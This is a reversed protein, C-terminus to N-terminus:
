PFTHIHWPAMKRTGRGAMDPASSRLVDHLRAESFAGLDVSPSYSAPRVSKLPFNEGVTATRKRGASADQVGEARRCEAGQCHRLRTRLRDLYEKRTGSIRENALQYPDRTLEYYETEGTVYSNYLFSPGRVAFNTPAPFLSTGTPTPIPGQWNEELFRRRFQEPVIGSRGKALLPAFSRGDPVLRPTIGAFDAITPALDTNLVTHKADGAAVGPGSIALPVRMDEEYATMKGASLRHQGLHYGNDSTLILYTNSLEGKKRLEDKLRALNRSVALMSTLREQRKQKLALQQNAPPLPLSRVWQPKDSVDRENFSPPDYAPWTGVRDKDQPSVPEPAHPANTGYWLFFPKGSAHAKAVFEVAKDGLVDEWPEYGTAGPDQPYIRVTGNENLTWSASPDNAGYWDSWGAPIGDLRAHYKNMYKGVLGTEYGSNKLWFPLDNEDYGEAHYQEYGTGPDIHQHIHHNHAYLGTLTSARSPCCLATTVFANQFFTGGSTFFGLNNELDFYDKKTLDDTVVLVINPREYAAAMSRASGIAALLVVVSAFILATSMSALLRIKRQMRAVEEM